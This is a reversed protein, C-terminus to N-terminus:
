PFTGRHHKKMDPTQHEEDVGLKERNEKQKGPDNRADEGPPAPPIATEPQKAADNERHKGPKM